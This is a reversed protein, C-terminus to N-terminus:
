ILARNFALQLNLNILVTNRISSHHFSDMTKSDILKPISSIINAFIKMHQVVCHFSCRCVHVCLMPDFQLPNFHGHTSITTPGIQVPQFQM